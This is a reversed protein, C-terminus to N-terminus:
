HSREASLKQSINAGTKCFYYCHCQKFSGKHLRTIYIESATECVVANNMVICKYMNNHQLQQQHATSSFSCVTSTKPKLPCSPLMIHDGSDLSYNYTKNVFLVGKKCSNEEVVLRLQSNYYSQQLIKSRIYYLNRSQDSIPLHVAAGPRHIQLYPVYQLELSATQYGESIIKNIM